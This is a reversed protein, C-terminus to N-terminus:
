RDSGHFGPTVRHFTVGDYWGQRALFVFNNVALPAKDPFLDLTIDGKETQLM